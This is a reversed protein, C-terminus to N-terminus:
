KLRRDPKLAAKMKKLKKLRRNLSRMQAEITEIERKLLSTQTHQINKKEIEMVVEVEYDSIFRKHIVRAGRLLAKVRIHKYRGSQIIKSFGAAEALKKYGEVKAARLAFVRAKADLRINPSALGTAKVRIMSDDGAVIAICLTFVFILFYRSRM